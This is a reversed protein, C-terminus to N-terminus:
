IFRERALKSLCAENCFGRVSHELMRRRYEQMSTGNWLQEISDTEINGLAQPCFCEPFVNKPEPGNERSLDVFLQRWPMLCFLQKKAQKEIQVDRNYCLDTFISMPLTFLDGDRIGIEAAPIKYM